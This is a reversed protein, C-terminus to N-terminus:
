KTLDPLRYKQMDDLADVDAESESPQLRDSTSVVSSHDSETETDPEMALAPVSEGTSQPVIPPTPQPTQPNSTPQHQPPWGPPPPGIGSWATGRREIGLSRRKHFADLRRIEDEDLRGIDHEQKRAADNAQNLFKMRALLGPSVNRALKTTIDRELHAPTAKLPRPSLSASASASASTSSAT